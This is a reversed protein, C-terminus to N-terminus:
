YGGLSNYKEFITVDFGYKKLFAACTLGCPGSGIVAVRKQKSM